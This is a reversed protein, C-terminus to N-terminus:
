RKWGSSRKRIITDFCKRKLKASRLRLTSYNAMLGFERPRDVPGIVSEVMSTRFFTPNFTFHHNGVAFKTNGHIFWKGFKLPRKTFMNRKRAKIVRKFSGNSREVLLHTKDNLLVFGVDSRSDMFSALDDFPIKKVCPFDNQLNLIFDYGRKKIELWGKRTALYVGLNKRNRIVEINQKKFYERTGDRSNNDIVLFDCSDRGNHQVFSEFTEKTIQLRNWTLILVCCRHM